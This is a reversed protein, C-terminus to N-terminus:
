SMKRPQHWFDAFPQLGLKNFIYNNCRHARGFKHSLVRKSAEQCRADPEKVSPPRPFQTRVQGGWGLALVVTSDRILWVARNIAKISKLGVM